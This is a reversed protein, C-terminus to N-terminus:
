ECINLIKRENEPVISWNPSRQLKLWNFDEVNAWKETEQDLATEKVHHRLM